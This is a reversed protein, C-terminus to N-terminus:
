RSRCGSRSCTLRYGSWLGVCRRSPHHHSIVGMIYLNKCRLGLAQSVNGSTVQAFIGGGAHVAPALAPVDRGVGQIFQAGGGAQRTLCEAQARIRM